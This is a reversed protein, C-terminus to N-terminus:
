LNHSISPRRAKQSRNACGLLSLIRLNCGAQKVARLPEAFRHLLIRLTNRRNQPRLYQYWQNTDVDGARKSITKNACSTLVAYSFITSGSRMAIRRSSLEIILLNCLSSKLLAGSGRAPMPEELVYMFSRISFSFKTLDSTNAFNLTPSAERSQHTLLM